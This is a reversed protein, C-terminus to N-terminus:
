RRGTRELLFAMAEAIVLDLVNLLEHDSDLILLQVAPHLAAFHESLTAPVVDDDLGHFILAPTNLAPFPAYRLADTYLEFTM